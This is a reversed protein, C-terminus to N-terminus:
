RPGRRRRPPPRGAGTAARGARRRRLSLLAGLAALLGGAPVTGCTRPELPRSVDAPLSCDVDVTPDLDEVAGPHIQPNQDDCDQPPSYGDGDVDVRGDCDQDPQGVIDRAGPNIRPDSDDCDVDQPWGDGDRDFDDGRDCDQDIGDYPTDVAEPHITEDGEACDYLAPYGDGDTDAWADTASLLGGWAGIDGRSDDLDVATPDAGDHLPGYWSYFADDADCGQGPVYRELRPDSVIDRAPLEGSALDGAVNAWWADYAADVAGDIAAAGETHAVLSSHLTIAAETRVAGGTGARNGLLSAHLLTLGGGGHDVAGGVTGVNEVLRDNHWVQATSTRTWVAGGYTATNACLLDRDLTVGGGSIWLAGGELATNEEFRSDTVTWSAAESAIAGGWSDARNGTFVADRVEVTTAPDGDDGLAGGVSAANGAFTAGDVVLTVRGTLGIAGGVESALNDDFRGGTVTATTDSLLLAGGRRAFGGTFSCGTLTVTADLAALHGGGSTAVNDLFLTDTADLSASSVLVAGGQNQLGITYLVDDDLDVHAGGSVELARGNFATVSMGSLTARTDAGTVVFVPGGGGSTVTVGGAGTLTVTGRSITVTGPETYTGPSVTFTEAEGVGVSDVAARLTAFDCGSACVTAARAAGLWALWPWPM